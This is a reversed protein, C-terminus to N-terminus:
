KKKCGWSSATESTLEIWEYGEEVRCTARAWAADIFQLVGGEPDGIPQRYFATGSWRVEGTEINVSRISV